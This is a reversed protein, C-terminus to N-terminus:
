GIRWLTRIIGSVTIVSSTGEFATNKVALFMVGNELKRQARIDLDIRRNFVAPQDAAFGYVRYAARWIWGRIPYDSMIFPDPIAAGSINFADLGIVGLGLFVQDSGEGSDHTLRAVDIGIVTRTLTMRNFRDPQTSMDDLVNTRVLTGTAITMNPLHDAWFTKMTM